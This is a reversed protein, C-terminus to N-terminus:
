LRTGKGGGCSTSNAFPYGGAERKVGKASETMETIQGAKLENQFRQGATVCIRISPYLLCYERVAEKQAM